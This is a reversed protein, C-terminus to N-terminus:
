LGLILSFENLFYVRYRKVSAEDKGEVLSAGLALNNHSVM